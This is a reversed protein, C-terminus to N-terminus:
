YLPTPCWYLDNKIHELLDGISETDKPFEEIEDNSFGTLDIEGMDVPEVYELSKVVAVPHASEQLHM